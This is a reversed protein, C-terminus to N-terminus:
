GATVPETLGSGEPDRSAVRVPVAVDRDLALPVLWRLNDILAPPLAAPDALFVEQDEATHAHRAAEDFARVAHMRYVPDEWVLFEEWAAVDVGAEERVERRAADLASEGALLKGGLANVRGAQWAPRTKRMLVVHRGDPTFLLALVYVFHPM